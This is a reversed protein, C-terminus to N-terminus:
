IKRINKTSATPTSGVRPFTYAELRVAQGFSHSRLRTEWNPTINAPAVRLGLPAVKARKCTRARPISGLMDKTDSFRRLRRVRRPYFRVILRQFPDIQRMTSITLTLRFSPTLVYAFGQNKTGRTLSSSVAQQTDHLQEVVSSSFSTPLNLILEQSLERLSLGVKTGGTPSAGVVTATYFRREVQILQSPKFDIDKM